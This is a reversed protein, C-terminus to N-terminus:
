WPPMEGVSEQVALLPVLKGVLCHPRQGPPWFQWSEVQPLTDVLAQTVNEPLAGDPLQM